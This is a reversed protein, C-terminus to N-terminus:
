LKLEDNFLIAAPNSFCEKFDKAMQSAHIGDIMRHDFTVGIPLIPRVALEGNVVWPRDSVMGVALLLPVRSYPVLPAWAVDVGISGVNTIMVSGFPDKPVGLFQLDLNLGYMLWSIFDLYLGTLRWPIFNFLNMNRKLELDEGKKVRNSKQGLAQALGALTLKEAQHIVAGALNSKEVKSGPEGPINVQYFLAVEDRLYIRHNRVMGNIEPRRRMCYTLARGVLHSPTIKAQHKRQYADLQSFVESMDIEIYGYVSPDKATKWTGMSIKRFTSVRKPQRMLVNPM